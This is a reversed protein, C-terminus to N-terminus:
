PMLEFAILDGEEINNRTTFGGKVEVVYRAPKESPISRESYPMVSKYIMIIQLADDVYMIDLPIKTNKMWFSRPAEEDFIFLMGTTDAMQSRYMLGQSRQADDDAVEIAIRRLTDGAAADLFALEGEKIFDPEEAPEEPTDIVVPEPEALWFYIGIAALAVFVLFLMKRASSIRSVKEERDPNPGLNSKSM